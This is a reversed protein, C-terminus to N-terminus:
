KVYKQENWSSVVAQPVPQEVFLLRIIYHRSIIPLERFVALCTAPHTYLKDLTAPSLAKLYAHLDKCKLANSTTLSMM